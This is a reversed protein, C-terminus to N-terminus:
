TKKDFGWVYALLAVGPVTTLGFDVGGSVILFLAVGTLFLKLIINVLNEM